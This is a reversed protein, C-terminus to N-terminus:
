LTFVNKQNKSDRLSGAFAGSDIHIFPPGPAEEIIPSNKSFPIHYNEIGLVVVPAPKRVAILLGM